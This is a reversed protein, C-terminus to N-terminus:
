LITSWGGKNQFYKSWAEHQTLIRQERSNFIHEKKVNLTLNCEKFKEMDVVFRHVISTYHSFEKSPKLLFEQNDDQVDSIKGLGRGQDNWIQRRARPLFFFFKSTSRQFKDQAMSSVKSCWLNIEWICGGNRCSKAEGKRQLQFSTRWM